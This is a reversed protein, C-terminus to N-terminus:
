FKEMELCASWSSRTPAACPTITSHAGRRSRTSLLRAPGFTISRRGRRRRDRTVPRRVVAGYRMDGVTAAAYALLWSFRKPIGPKSAFDILMTREDALATLVELKEAASNLVGLTTAPARRGPQECIARLVDTASATAAWGELPEREKLTLSGLDINQEDIELDLAVPMNAPTSQLSAFLAIEGLCAITDARMNANASIRGDPGSVTQLCGAKLRWAALRDPQGPVMASYFTAPTPLVRGDPFTLRLTAQKGEPTLFLEADEVDIEPRASRIGFPESFYEFRLAKVSKRTGLLLDTFDQPSEVEITVRATGHVKEFGASRCIEAKTAAYGRGAAGIQQEIWRVPDHSHEDDAGFRVAM